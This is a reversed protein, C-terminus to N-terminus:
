WLPFVCHQCEFVCARWFATSLSLLYRTVKSSFISANSLFLFYDINQPHPPFVYSTQPCPCMILRETFFLLILVLSAPHPEISMVPQLAFHQENEHNSIPPSRARTAISRSSESYMSIPNSSALLQFRCPLPKRM